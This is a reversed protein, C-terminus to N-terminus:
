SHDKRITWSSLHRDPRESWDNSPLKEHVGTILTGGTRLAGRFTAIAASQAHADLYSLRDRCVIMDFSEPIPEFADEHVFIIRARVAASGSFLGGEEAFLGSERLYEPVDAPSWSSSEAEVIAALEDDAWIKVKLRPRDMALICALSLADNGRRCGHNWIAFHRASSGPLLALLGARLSENWLTDICQSAFGALFDAALKETSPLVSGWRASRYRRLVWASNVDSVAYSAQTRLADRLGPVADPAPAAAQGGFLTGPDLTRREAGCDSLPGTVSDVAMAVQVGRLRLVVATGQNTTEGHRFLVGLHPRPDLVPLPAGQWVHLGLVDASAGRVPAIREIEFTGEVCAAEICYESGGIFVTYVLGPVGPRM